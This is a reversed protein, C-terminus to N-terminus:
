RPPAKTSPMSGIREPRPLGSELRAPNRPWDAVPKEFSFRSPQSSVVSDAYAAWVEIAHPGHYERLWEAREDSGEPPGCDWLDVTGNPNLRM